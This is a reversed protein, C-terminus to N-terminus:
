QPPIENFKALEVFLNEHLQSNTSSTQMTASTYYSKKELFQILGQM